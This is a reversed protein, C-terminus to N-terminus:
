IDLAIVSDDELFYNPASSYRWEEPNEVLGRRVPNYHIYELKQRFFDESFIAKPHFGDQWVKYANGTNEIKAAVEFFTLLGTRGEAELTETIKKSTYRKFDRMIDSLSYKDSNQSILHVHDPMIVYGFISLGKNRQCYKLSEIVIEFYPETTFLPQWKVISNTSFYTNHSEPYVRYRKM